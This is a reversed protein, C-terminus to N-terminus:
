FFLKLSCKRINKSLQACLFTFGHCLLYHLKLEVKVEACRKVILPLRFLPKLNKLIARPVLNAEALHLSTLPSLITLQYQFRLSVQFFCRIIVYLLWGLIINGKFSQNDNPPPPPQNSIPRGRALPQFFKPRLQGLTTPPRPFQVIKKSTM